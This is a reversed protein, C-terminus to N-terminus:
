ETCHKLNTSHLIIFFISPHDLNEQVKYWSPDFEPLVPVYLYLTVNYDVHVSKSVRVLEESILDTDVHIYRQSLM